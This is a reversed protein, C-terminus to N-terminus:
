EPAQVPPEAAGPSVPDPPRAARQASEVELAGARVLEAGLLLIVSSFYLFVLVSIATGIPGFVTDYKAVTTAYYTFGLRLATWLITALLAGPWAEAVTVPRNPVVRYVILFAFFVLGVPILYTIVSFLTDTGPVTLTSSVTEQLIKTVLGLAVSAVVLVGTSALLALGILRDRWFARKPARVFVRSIGSSLAGFAGLASWLLLVLGIIGVGGRAAVARDILSGIQGPDVPLARAIRGIVFERAAGAGIIYSAAVVALIFLNVLSLVIFYAMAGAYQLAEHRFFGVAMTRVIRTTRHRGVWQNMVTAIRRIRAGMEEL